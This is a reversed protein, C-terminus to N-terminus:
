VRLPDYEGKLLEIENKLNTIETAMEQLQVQTRLQYDSFAKRLEEIKAYVDATFPEATLDVAKIILPEANITQVLEGRVYVGFTINLEGATLKDKAVTIETGSVTETFGNNKITATLKANQPLEGVVSIKLDEDIIFPSRDEYKACHNYLKLNRM